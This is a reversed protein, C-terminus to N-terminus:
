NPVDAATRSVEVLNTGDYLYSISRSSGTGPQTWASLKFIANSFPNTASLAVGSTNRILFTVIQGRVLHAPVGFTFAANSTATLSVVSSKQFDVPVATGFVLTVPKGFAGVQVVDPLGSQRSLIYNSM